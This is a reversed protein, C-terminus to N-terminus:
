ILNAERTKGCKCKEGNRVPQCCKECVHFGGYMRHKVGDSKRKQELDKERYTDWKALAVGAGPGGKKYSDYIGKILIHIGDLLNSNNAILGDVSDKPYGENM